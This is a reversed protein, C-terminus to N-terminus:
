PVFGDESEKQMDLRPLFHKVNQLCRDTQKFQMWVVLCM